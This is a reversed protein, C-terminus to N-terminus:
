ELVILIDGESVSDGEKVKIEKVTGDVETQVENEMKMAEMYIVDQGAKVVDGVKVAVKIILGPLPAKVCTSDMVSQPVKYQPGKPKQSLGSESFSIVPATAQSESEFNRRPIPAPKIDSIQEIGLDKLGVTYDNGNVSVEAVEAGFKKIIVEYEKENIELKIKKDKM